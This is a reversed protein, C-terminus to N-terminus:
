NRHCSFRTKKSLLTKIRRKIISNVNEIWHPTISAEELKKQKDMEYKIGDEDGVYWWEVSNIQKSTPIVNFKTIKYSHKIM